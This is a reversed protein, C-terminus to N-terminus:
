SFWYYYNIMAPNYESINKSPDYIKRISNFDDNILSYINLIDIDNIEFWGIDIYNFCSLYSYLHIRKLRPFINVPIRCKVKTYNNICNFTFNEYHFILEQDKPENEFIFELIIYRDKDNITFYDFLNSYIINNIEKYDKNKFCKQTEKYTSINTDIFVEINIDCIFDFEHNKVKIKLDRFFTDIKLFYAFNNLDNFVEGIKIESSDKYILLNEYIEEFSFKLPEVGPIIFEEIPFELFENAKLIITKSLCIPSLYSLKSYLFHSFIGVGQETMALNLNGDEGRFKLSPISINRFNKYNSIRQNEYQFISIFDYKYYANTDHILFGIKNEDFNDCKLRYLSNDVTFVDFTELFLLNKNEYKIIQCQFHIYEDSRNYYKICKLFENVKSNESLPLFNIYSINAYKANLVNIINLDFDM